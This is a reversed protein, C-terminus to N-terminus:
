EGLLVRLDKALVTPDVDSHLLIRARSLKDVLMIADLHVVIGSEPPRATVSYNRWVAALSATDAILYRLTGELRHAAVFERVAQPTDHAPDVSVALFAVRDAQARLAEAAGRIKEATLPCTDPCQTYLFTLLVVRGRLASLTVRDGRAGDLLTFDPAAQAGLDTGELSEKACAGTALVVVALM